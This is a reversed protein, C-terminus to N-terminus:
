YDYKNNSTNHVTRSALAVAKHVSVQLARVVAMNHIGLVVLPLEWAAPVSTV